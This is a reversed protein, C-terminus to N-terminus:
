EIRHDISARDRCCSECKLRLITFTVFAAFFGRAFAEDDEDEEEDEEEGAEAEVLAFGAGNNDQEGAGGTTPAM